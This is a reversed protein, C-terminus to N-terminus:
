RLSSVCREKKKMSVYAKSDRRSGVLVVALGPTTGHERKMEEVSTRVEGRIDAAIAKGDIIRATGLPAAAAECMVPGSYMRLTSLPRAQLWIPEHHGVLGAVVGAGIAGAAALRARPWM